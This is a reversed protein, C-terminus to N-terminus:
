LWFDFGIFTDFGAIKLLAMALNYLAIAIILVYYSVDSDKCTILRFTTVIIVALHLLIIVFAYYPKLVPVFLFLLIVLVLLLAIGVRLRKGCSSDWSFNRLLRM